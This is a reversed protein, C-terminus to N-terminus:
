GRSLEGLGWCWVGLVSGSVGAVAVGVATKESRKASLGPSDCRVTGQWQQDEIAVRRDVSRSKRADKRRVERRGAGQWPNECV